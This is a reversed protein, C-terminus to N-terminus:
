VYSMWCLWEKTRPTELVWEKIVARLCPKPFTMNECTDTLWETWPPLPSPYTCWMCWPIPLTSLEGLCWVQPGVGEEKRVDDWKINVNLQSLSLLFFIAKTSHFHAQISVKISNELFSLFIHKYSIEIGPAASNVLWCQIFINNFSGIPWVRYCKVEAEGDVFTM